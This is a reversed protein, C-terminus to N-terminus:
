YKLATNTFSFTQFQRVYRKYLIITKSKIGYSLSLFVIFPKKLLLLIFRLKDRKLGFQAGWTNDSVSRSFLSTDEHM